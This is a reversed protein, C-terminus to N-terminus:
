LFVNEMGNGSETLPLLIGCYIINRSQLLPKFVQLVQIGLDDLLLEIAALLRLTSIVGVDDSGLELVRKRDVAPAARRGSFEDESSVPSAGRAGGAKAALKQRLLYDEV